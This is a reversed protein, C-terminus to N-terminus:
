QTSVLCYQLREFGCQDCRSIFVYMALQNCRQSNYFRISLEACELWISLYSYFGIAISLLRTYSRSFFTFTFTNRDTHLLYQRHHHIGFSIAVSFINNNKIRIRKSVWQENSMAMAWKENSLTWKVTAAAATVAATAAATIEEKENQRNQKKKKRKKPTHKEQDSWKKKNAM